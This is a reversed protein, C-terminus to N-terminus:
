RQAQSTGVMLAADLGDIWEGLRLKSSGRGSAKLRGHDGKKEGGKGTPLWIAPKLQSLGAGSSARRGSRPLPVLGKDTDAVHFKPDLSVRVPVVMESSVVKSAGVSGQEHAISDMGISSSGQLLSRKGGKVREGAVLSDDNLIVSRMGEAGDVDAELHSLVDFKGAGVLDIQSVVAMSDDMNKGRPAKRVKRGSAMMWPGYKEMSDVKTPVSPTARVDADEPRRGTLMDKFSSKIPEDGDKMSETGKDCGNDTAAVVLASGQRDEDSVPHPMRELKTPVPILVGQDPPRGNVVGTLTASDDGLVRPQIYSGESFQPSM